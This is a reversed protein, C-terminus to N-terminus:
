KGAVKFSNLTKQLTYESWQHIIQRSYYIENHVKPNKKKGGFFFVGLVGVRMIVNILFLDRFDIPHM